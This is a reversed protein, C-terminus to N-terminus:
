PTGRKRKRGISNAEVDSESETVSDDVLKKQSKATTKGQKRKTGISNAEVDDEPETLSDDVLKKQSKATTKGWKHKSGISNAEIDSEPETLSDDVLKKQSKATAEGQKHKTGITAEVDSKPKTLSNSNHGEVLKKKQEDKKIRDSGDVEYLTDSGNEVLQNSRKGTRTGKRQNDCKEGRNESDTIGTEVEHESSNKQSKRTM